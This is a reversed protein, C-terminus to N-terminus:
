SPTQRGDRVKPLLISLPFRKEDYNEELPKHTLVLTFTETQTHPAHICHHHYRNHPLPQPLVLNGLASHQRDTLGSFLPLRGLLCNESSLILTRKEKAAHGKDGIRATSEWVMKNDRISVNCAIVKPIKVISNVQNYLLGGSTCHCLLKM